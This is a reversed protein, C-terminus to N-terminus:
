LSETTINGLVEAGPGVILHQCHVDGTLSGLVEVMAVCKVDARLKGEVGIKVHTDKSNYCLCELRGSLSGEVLLSDSFTLTGVSDLNLDSGKGIVVSFNNESLGEELTSKLSTIHVRNRSLELSASPGNKLGKSM